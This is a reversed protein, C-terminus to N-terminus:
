PTLFISNPVNLLKLATFMTDSAELSITREKRFVLNFLIAFERSPFPYYDANHTFEFSSDDDEDSSDDDAPVPSLRETVDEEVEDDDSDLPDPSPMDEEEMDKIIVDEDENSPQEDYQEMASHHFAQRPLQHNQAPLEEQESRLRNENLRNQHKTTKVHADWKRLAIDTQCIDCKMKRLFVSLIKKFAV